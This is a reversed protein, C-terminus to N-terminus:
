PLPAPPPFPPPPRPLHGPSNQPVTLPPHTPRLLRDEVADPPPQVVLEGVLRDGAIRARGIPRYAFTQRLEIVLGVRAPGTAALCRELLSRLGIRRRATNLWSVQKFYRCPPVGQCIRGGM